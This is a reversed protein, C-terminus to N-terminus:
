SFLAVSAFTQAVAEPGAADSAQSKEAAQYTELSESHQM